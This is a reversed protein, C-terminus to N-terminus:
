PHFKLSSITAADPRLRVNQTVGHEFGTQYDTTAFVDLSTHQFASLAAMLM